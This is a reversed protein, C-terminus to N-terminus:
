FISVSEGIELELKREKRIFLHLRAENINASRKIIMTIEYLTRRYESMHSLNAIM